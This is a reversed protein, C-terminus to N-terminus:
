VGGRPFPVTSPTYDEGGYRDIGKTIRLENITGEFFFSPADPANTESNSGIALVKDANAYVSPAAHSAVMIGNIYLWITAGDSSAAVSECTGATLTGGDFLTFDVGSNSFAFGIAASTQYFAWSLDVSPVFIDLNGWHGVIFGFSSVNDPKITAEITFIKDGFWWDDNDAYSLNASSGDFVASGDEGTICSSTTSVHINGLV